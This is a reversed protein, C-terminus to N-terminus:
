FWVRQPTAPPTGHLVEGDEVRVAALIEVKGPLQYTGRTVEGLRDYIADACRLNAHWDPDMVAPTVVDGEEDLVAPTVVVPFGADLDFRLGAWRGSSLLSGDPQTTQADLVTLAAKFAGENPARIYCDVSM